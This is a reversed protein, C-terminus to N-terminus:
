LVTMDRHEENQAGEANIRVEGDWPFQEPIQGWHDTVLQPAAVGAGIIFFLIYLGLLQHEGGVEHGRGTRRQGLIIVKKYSVLCAVVIVAIIFGVM